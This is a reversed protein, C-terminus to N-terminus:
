ENNSDGSKLVAYVACDYKNILDCVKVPIAINKYSLMIAPHYLVVEHNYYNLTHVKVERIIEIADFVEHVGDPWKVVMKSWNHIDSVRGNRKYDAGYMYRSYSVRNSKKTYKQMDSDKSIDRISYLCGSDALVM